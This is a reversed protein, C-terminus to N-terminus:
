VVPIKPSAEYAGDVVGHRAGLRFDLDARANDQLLAHNFGRIVKSHSLEM